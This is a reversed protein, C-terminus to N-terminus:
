RLRRRSAITPGDGFSGHFFAIFRALDADTDVTRIRFGPPIAPEPVPSPEGLPRAMRRVTSETRTFGARELLTCRYHDQGSDPTASRSLPAPRSARELSPAALHPNADRDNRTRRREIFDRTPLRAPTPLTM